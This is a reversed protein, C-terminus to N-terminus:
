KSPDLKAPIDYGNERFWKAAGPHLPITAYQLTLEALNVGKVSAMATGQVETDSMIADVIKYAADESLSAGAGVGVGFSWTSYADVGDAAGEPIDVVSIDPMKEILAQKQDDTLSLVKIPTFTAIDLTSSDLKLGAGSKVYGTVRNDKIMDVVDTTSGRVYEASLGLAEFVAETTSETASGKIGPNFRKDALDSLTAIGSDERVIVNQPAGTYVWLLGLGDMARGDFAKTGAHAHQAVNTTVLGLDIQDREIRRLNDMTAGTEVVSAEIGNDADNILKAVSVFYGYHSSSASTSGILLKEQAFAPVSLGFALVGALALKSLKM